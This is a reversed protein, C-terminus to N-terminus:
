LGFHVYRVCGDEVDAAPTSLAECCYYDRGIELPLACQLPVSEHVFCQLLLDALNMRPRRSTQGAALPLLLFVGLALSPRSSYSHEPLSCQCTCHRDSPLPTTTIHAVDTSRHVVFSAVAKRVRFKSFVQLMVVVAWTVRTHSGLVLCAGITPRVFSAPLFYFCCRECLSAIYM